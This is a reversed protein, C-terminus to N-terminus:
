DRHQLDGADFLHNESPMRSSLPNTTSASSNPSSCLRWRGRLAHKMLNQASPPPAPAGDRSPGVVPLLAAASSTYNLPHHPGKSRVLNLNELTLHQVVDIPESTTLLSICTGDRFFRLYRFYTVIHIPNSWTFQTASAGGSRTYNVTSIYVGTFRIRPFTHFIDRYMASNTFTPPPIKPLPEDSLDEFIVERGQIDKEFNYQQSALGFESGLAISKWISNDTHIQYALKKCVLSLRALVAPDRAGVHHLLEVLVEPPLKSVTCPPSIDGAIIPPIAEIQSGAFSEIIQTITLPESPAKSSHHAPNPVTVAANSPNVNAPKSKSPFYKKRYEHDVNADLRYAKRYHTLSDGLNGSGEKEMAKEFHELATQPNAKTHTVFEDADADERVDLERLKNALGSSDGGTQSAEIHEHDSDDRVDAVPHRAPPRNIPRDLRPESPRRGKSGVSSRPPEPKRRADVESRWKQRFEELISANDAM